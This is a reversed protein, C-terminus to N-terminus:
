AFTGKIKWVTKQHKVFEGGIDLGSKEIMAKLGVDIGYDDGYKVELEYSTLGSELRADALEKWLPEHPFWVLNVPVHPDKTPKLTMKTEVYAEANSRM